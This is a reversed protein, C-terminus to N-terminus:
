SMAPLQEIKLRKEVPLSEEEELKRKAGALTEPTFMVMDDDDDDKGHGNEVKNSLDEDAVIKPQLTDDTNVVSAIDGTILMGDPEKEEDFTERHKVHVSCRFDQHYDEMTLVVGTTIPTPYSALSKNLLSAYHAAMDEELDDGTEYLLSSGQMIVPSDIGLKRKLVKEIVDKMTATVTNVELVLPTESCVYCHPNPEAPEVPVLLMKQTPHEECYTMWMSILQWM